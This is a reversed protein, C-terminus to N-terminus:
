KNEINLYYLDLITTNYQMVAELYDVQITTANELSLIYQFFDIEGHKYSSDAVKIIEESVKKGYENFYAIAQQQQEVEQQKQKIYSDIKTEEQKKQAEWAQTELKAVKSKAMNGNFLIPVSLGVQFGYLSQSLGTNRGQFYELNLDPLWNQKQLSENSKYIKTLSELYSVYLDKSSNLTVTSIPESIANYIVIKEDSQVLSQLVELQAKKEKELQSLKTKIQRFKAEATIKELYNTEGLEFRRNSAKSFNQYLSDLYRYLKEQHQVNVIQYYVQSIQLKLQNQQIEFGTKEKEYEATYVKKKAGYVTPFSFSQQAGFVKLPQNNLALNNQDYSYYVNTKEFDYALKTAQKAKEIKLQGAKIGANNSIAKQFLSDLEPNNQQSFGILPLLLLFIMMFDSEKVKKFKPKKFEKEDLIKFLIPLVIMTLLTATFLGGIVVTALPRQVEAGASSSIAMPLFGLAAASATLLVPRLRDTTGKLILENMNTMGQHKLEKFHEILVIGNLVAIGFLAIFGVGASISFPLDRLWLFLIGGVASLPIASYVMLAEKISGFAFYLLNFILFLAIPVAIMLRAKASQLNEFQGGYAVRYGDPLDIKTEIIKKVDDVVSQLDRNRVNIGVVIRRNTNDRSIKAPGETYEIKALERLPIQEGNPTTVYLNQLDELNKRNSEDLRVVLDFRKEGEFVNGATKGAFGLAIMDNLDAINLGFQAIKSRDYQVFMQPLGETKEII